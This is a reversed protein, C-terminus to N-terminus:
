DHMDEESGPCEQLMEDSSKYQTGCWFCYHYEARLYELIRELREAPKDCTIDALQSPSRSFFFSARSHLRCGRVATLLNHESVNLRLFQAADEIWKQPLDSEANAVVVVDDVDDDDLPQLADARMQERLREEILGEEGKGDSWSAPTTAAAAAAAAATSAAVADLLGAPFTDPNIPDLWLANFQPV